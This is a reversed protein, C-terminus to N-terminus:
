PRYLAITCDGDLDKEWLRPNSGIQGVRCYQGVTFVCTQTKQVCPESLEPHMEYPVIAFSSQEKSNEVTSFASTFALVMLLMPVILKLFNTKM